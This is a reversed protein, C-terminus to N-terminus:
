EDKNKRQRFQEVIKSEIKTTSYGEVFPIVEVSGGWDMVERAGVIDDIKYDGGKVLVDPKLTKILDIPTDGDFPCVADVCQLSALLYLRSAVTNIPRSPGKLKKVSRDSNVAVILRDGKQSAAELYKIHGAHLIDFCGNTFVIKQGKKRWEAVLYALGDLDFIKSQAPPTLPSM